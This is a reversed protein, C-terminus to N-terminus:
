IEEEEEEEEQSWYGTLDGNETYEDEELFRQMMNACHCVGGSPSDDNPDAWGERYWYSRVLQRIANAQLRVKEMVKDRRATSRRLHMYDAVLFSMIAAQVSDAQPRDEGPRARMEPPRTPRPPSWGALDLRLRGATKGVNPIHKQTAMDQLEALGMRGLTRLYALRKRRDAIVIGLADKLQDESCLSRGATANHDGDPLFGRPLLLEGLMLRVPTLLQKALSRWRWLATDSADALNMAPFCVCLTALSVRWGNAGCGAQYIAARASQQVAARRDSDFEIVVLFM